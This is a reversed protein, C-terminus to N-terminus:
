DAAPIVQGVEAFSEPEPVPSVAPSAPYLGREVLWRRAQEAYEPFDLLDKGAARITSRNVVTWMGTGTDLHYRPIAQYDKLGTHEWKDLFRFGTVLHEIFQRQSRVGDDKYTGSVDYARADLPVV